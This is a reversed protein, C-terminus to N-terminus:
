TRKYSPPLPSLSVAFAAFLWVSCVSLVPQFPHSFVKQWTNFICKRVTWFRGPSSGQLMRPRLVDEHKGDSEASSEALKTSKRWRMRRKSSTFKAPIASSLRIGLLTTNFVLLINTPARTSKCLQEGWTDHSSSTVKTHHPDPAKDNTQIGGKVTSTYSHRELDKYPSPGPHTDVTPLLKGTWHTMLDDPKKNPKKWINWNGLYACALLHHFPDPRILALALWRSKWCHTLPAM